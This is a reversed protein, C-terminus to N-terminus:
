SHTSFNSSITVHRAWPPPKWSGLASAVVDWALGQWPIELTVLSGVLWGAAKGAGSGEKGDM